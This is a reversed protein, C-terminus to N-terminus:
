TISMISNILELSAIKALSESVSLVHAHTCLWKNRLKRQGTQCHAEDNITRHGNCVYMDQTDCLVTVNQVHDVKRNHSEDGDFYCANFASDDPALASIGM